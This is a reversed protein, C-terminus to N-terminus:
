FDYSVTIEADTFVKGVDRFVYLCTASLSCINHDASIMVGPVVVGMVIKVFVRQGVGGLISEQVATPRNNPSFKM